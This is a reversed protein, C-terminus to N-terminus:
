SRRKVDVSLMFGAVLLVLLVAQQRPTFRAHPIAVVSM